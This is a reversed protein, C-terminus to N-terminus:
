RFGSSYFPQILVVSGQLQLVSKRRELTQLQRRRRSPAIGRKALAESYLNFPIHPQPLQVAPPPKVALSLSGSTKAVVDCSCSCMNFM